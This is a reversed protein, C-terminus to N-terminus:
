SFLLASKLLSQVNKSTLSSANGDDNANTNSNSDEDVEESSISKDLKLRIEAMALIQNEISNESVLKFVHVDKKQGVRHSRDEAQRDNQPNFDMDYMIVVNASTLNIGFGGAKTSLLFVDISEDQNFEDIIPQREAVKTAGDLRTFTLGLTNLVYELIDLMSTFQSFLLIKSGQKKIKPLLTKLKQVKGADMWEENDLMFHRISRHNKCLLMLEFDTMVSMDEYIYHEDADWYKEEKMITKAMQKIKDDNYLRRFLLPHDAAKRLQMVTNRLKDTIQNKNKDSEELVKTYQSRSELIISQYLEQQCEVMPCNEIYHTKKPLHSLVQAKKRRLVFPTMMKKAREIRRRSLMQAVNRHIDSSSSSTKTNATSSPIITDTMMDSTPTSPSSTESTESTETSPTSSSSKGYHKLKFIKRIDEECGTFMNPLIFTLLSILEQLNNQLPTGTLLLRFPTRIAMLNNYRASLCNKVMHGEDLIMSKCKLKKLFKRDETRSGAINYTTVIAHIEDRRDMIDERLEEREAMSGYYSAVQLTPCFREFERLWNDITSSPVIILHPGHEGLEHLRGLFSIVQATKGLGMEDALIGSIGKRYLLLLWNVGIIQYSNLKFEPNVIQPQEILFGDMADNYLADSVNLHNKKQNIKNINTQTLHLGAEEEEKDEEVQDIDMPSPQSSSSSNNLQTWVNIINQLSEGVSEINEIMQDVIDYGEMMEIYADIFRTSLGRAEKLKDTLDDIHLFPRLSILKEAIILKCGSVDMIEQTSADNYFQLAKNLRRARKLEGALRVKDDMEEDTDSDDTDYLARRPKKHITTTTYKKDPNKKKMTAQHPDNNNENDNNNIKNPMKDLLTITEMIKGNCKKVLIERILEKPIWKYKQALFEVKQTDSLLDLQKTAKKAKTDFYAEQEDDDEELEEDDITKDDNLEDQEMVKSDIKFIEDEEEENDSLIIKNKKSPHEKHHHDNKNNDVNDDDDDDDTDLHQHRRRRRKIKPIMEEDEDSKHNEKM